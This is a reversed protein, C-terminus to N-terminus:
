RAPQRKEQRISMMHSDNAQEYRPKYANYAEEELRAQKAQEQWYRVAETGQALKLHKTQSDM